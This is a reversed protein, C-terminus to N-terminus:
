RRKGNNRKQQKRLTEQQQRQAEELRAMFGSKKKPKLANAAMEARVKDEKVLLRTGYTLLITFLLSIFYYYSLGSAYNNFFVLFFLPMIYMMWKMGPMSSSSQQSQMTIYTYAINTVTMLLCFLSVHNGFYASIVPIHTTWSFVADPASLDHAWLFSQGRLDICTPFFAFVAIYVPMQLLMPLCGGLPNAGAMRYLEMTKQQRKIANDQGPYKAELAKIDPALIKMKAQSKYSKFMFPSLVLKILLTLIFIIIGYNGIFSSLWNFVPIVLYVNIWRFLTWGLPVLRKLNLDENDATIGSAAKGYAKVMSKYNDLLTYRNPGLYMFFSAPVQASSNYGVSSHISLDKLYHQYDPSDKSFPVSKMHAGDFEKDAILVASFFQNHTSFWKVRDESREEQESSENLYDVDGDGTFKYYITSNREEFMTGEEHRSMKQKWSFPLATINGGILKNMNKQVIEMRVFFNGGRALTYRFGFSSGNGFDLSMLVTSDNVQTPTFNLDKTEYTQGDRMDLTFNMVNDKPSIVEVLKTLHASPYATLTARSIMGGKSSIELELSDNKLKFISNAGGMKNVLHGNKLYMQNLMELAAVAKNNLAIDTIKHDVVDGYNILKDGVKITGTVAGNAKTLKVDNTMLKASDGGYSEFNQMLLTLQDADLSDRVTVANEAQKQQEAKEKQAAEQQQRALEEESPKNIYMFGFIVACM